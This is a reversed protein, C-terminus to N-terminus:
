FDNTDYRHRISKFLSADGMGLRGMAHQSGVAPVKDRFILYNFEQEVGSTKVRSSRHDVKKVLSGLHSSIMRHFSSHHLPAVAFRDHGLHFVM